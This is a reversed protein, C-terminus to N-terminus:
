KDKAKKLAEKWQHKSAGIDEVRETILKKREGHRKEIKTPNSLEEVGWASTLLTLVALVITAISALSGVKTDEVLFEYFSSISAFAGHRWGVFISFALFIVAVVIGLCSKKIRSSFNERVLKDSHNYEDALENINLDYITGNGVTQNIINGNGSNNIVNANM